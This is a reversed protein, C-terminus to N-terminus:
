RRKEPWLLSQLPEKFAPMCNLTESDINFRHMVQLAIDEDTNLMVINDPLMMNKMSEEVSEDMLDLIIRQYLKIFMECYVNFKTIQFLGIKMEFVKYTNSKM